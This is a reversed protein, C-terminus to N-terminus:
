TPLPSEIAQYVKLPCHIVGRQRNPVRWSHNRNVRLPLYRYMTNLGAFDLGSVITHGNGV